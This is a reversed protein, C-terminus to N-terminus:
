GLDFEPQGFALLLMVSPFGDLRTFGAAFHLPRHFFFPSSFTEYGVQPRRLPVRVLIERQKGYERAPLCSSSAM